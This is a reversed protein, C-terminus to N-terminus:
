GHHGLIPACGQWPAKGQGGRHGPSNAPGTSLQQATFAQSQSYKPRAGQSEGMGTHAATCVANHQLDGWTKTTRKVRTYGGNVGEGWLGCCVGHGPILVRTARVYMHHCYSCEGYPRETDTNDQLQWIQSCNWEMIHSGPVVGCEKSVVLSFFPTNFRLIHVHTLPFCFYLYICKSM